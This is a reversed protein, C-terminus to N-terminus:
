VIKWYQLYLFFNDKGTWSFMGFFFSCLDSSNQYTPVEKSLFDVLSQYCKNLAHYIEQKRFCFM